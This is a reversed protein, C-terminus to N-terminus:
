GKLVVAECTRKVVDNSRRSRLCGVQEYTSSENGCEPGFDSKLKGGRCGKKVQELRM